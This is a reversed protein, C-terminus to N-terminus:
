NYNWNGSGIYSYLKNSPQYEPIKEFEEESQKTIDRSWDRGISFDIEGTQEFNKQRARM